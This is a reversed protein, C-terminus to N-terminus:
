DVDFEGNYLRHMILNLQHGIDSKLASTSFLLQHGEQDLGIIIISKLDAEKVCDLIEDVSIKKNKDPFTLINKM